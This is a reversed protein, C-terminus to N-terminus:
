RPVAPASAAPAADPGAAAPPLGEAAFDGALPISLTACTGAPPTAALRFQARPGYLAALRERVNALGVGLGGRAVGAPGRGTDVVDIVLSAGDRRARVAVTGGDAAPEVGHKVANEVLSILLNPPFPHAALDDPLDIAFALRAGMRRRLINLYAEALGVEKALTTSSARLQPLAARLYDILHALLRNAERPDTETLYQVSALTNFLFHPEVQAQMLKLEAEIAQKSLLLRAAEAEHLAAAARTERHKIYFFLSILMGNAFATFVNLAFVSARQTVHEWSYGKVVITLTVGILAGAAVAATLRLIPRSREWPSAANVCYAIAFGYLQVTLLPQWFPRTDEVWLLAAIATNIAALLLVTPWSFRFGRALTAALSSPVSAAPLAAM